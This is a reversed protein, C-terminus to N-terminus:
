PCPTILNLSKAVAAGNPTGLTVTARTDGAVTLDLRAKATIAEGPNLIGPEYLDATSASGLAVTWQGASAPTDGTIYTLRQPSNNGEALQVIMDMRSFEAISTAGINDGTVTLICTGGATSLSVTTLVIRTRAREGADKAAQKTAQGMATQGALGTRFTTLAGAMFVAM